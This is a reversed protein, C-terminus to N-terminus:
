IVDQLKAQAYCKRCFWNKLKPQKTLGVCKFHYWLLCSECAISLDTNLDHYCSTCTWCMKKLKQKYVDEVLAWADSTFHRRVLFIDVNEDAISNPVREPMCEVQDEDILVGERLAKRAVKEEVLWSLIVPFSVNNNRTIIIPISVIYM